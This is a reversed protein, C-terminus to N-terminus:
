RVYASSGLLAYGAAVVSRNPTGLRYKTINNVKNTYVSHGSERLNRVASTVANPSQFGFRSIAQNLTIENGRQLAVLLKDTKTKTTM